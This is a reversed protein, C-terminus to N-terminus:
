WHLILLANSMQPFSENKLPHPECDVEQVLPCYSAIKELLNCLNKGQLHETFHVANSTNFLLLHKVDFSFATKSSTLPQFDNIERAQSAESHCLCSFYNYESTPLYKIRFHMKFICLQSFAVEESACQNEQIQRVGVVLQLIM